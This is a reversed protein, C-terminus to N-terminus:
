PKKIFFINEMKNYNSPMLVQKLIRATATRKSINKYILIRM